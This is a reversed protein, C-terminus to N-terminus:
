ESMVMNTERILPTWRAAEAAIFAQADAATGGIPQMGLDRLFKKGADSAMYDRVTANVKQLIDPPTKAPAVLAFWTGAVLDAVGTERVTPVNPLIDM